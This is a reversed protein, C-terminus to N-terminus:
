NKENLIELIKENQKIILEQNELVKDLKNNLVIFNHTNKGRYVTNYYDSNKDYESLRVSCGTILVVGSVLLVTLIKKM